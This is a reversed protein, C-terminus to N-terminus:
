LHGLLELVPMLLGSGVGVQAAGMVVLAVKIFSDFEVILHTTFRCIFQTGNTKHLISHKSRVDCNISVQGSSSFCDREWNQACFSVNIAWPTHESHAVTFANAIHVRKLTTAEVPIIRNGPTRCSTHVFGFILNLTFM